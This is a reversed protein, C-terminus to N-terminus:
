EEEAERRLAMYSRRVRELFPDDPYRELIAEYLEKARAVDRGREILALRELARPALESLPHLEALMELGRMAREEMGSGIDLEAREYLARPVLLSSPYREILAGLSDAAAARSGAAALVLAERYRDLPGTGERLAEEVLLAKELPPMSDSVSRSM